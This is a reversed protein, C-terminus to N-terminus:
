SAVSTALLGLDRRVNRSVVYALDAALREEPSAEPGLTASAETVLGARGGLYVARLPSPLAEVEERTRPTVGVLDLRGQAVAVIGSVLRVLRAALSPGSAEVDWVRAGRWSQGEPPAPLRVIERSTLRGRGTARLAVLALAALPLGPLLLSAAATRLVSRVLRSDRPPSAVAGVLHPDRVPAAVGLEGHLVVGHGAVVGELSVSEGVYSGPLVLAGSLRAGKAVVSGAGVVAGPGLVADAEVRCDEAIYVPAEIRASPALSVNRSLWVGPEVERGGFHLGSFRGALIASQAALWGGTTDCAVSATAGRIAGRRFGVRVLWEGLADLTLDDDAKRLTAPPLSALGAWQLGAPGGEGDAVCYVATSAPVDGPEIQWLRDARALLVPGTDGILARKVVPLPKRGDRALHYRVTVGWRRGDGVIERVREPADCVVVDIARAGRDVVREVVHQLCSRDLITRLGAPEALCGKDRPLATAIIVAKM